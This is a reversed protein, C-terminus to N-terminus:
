KPDPQPDSLSGSKPHHDAAGNDKSARRRYRILCARGARWQRNLAYRTKTRVALSSIEGYNTSFRDSVLFQSLWSHLHPWDQADFWHMDASGSNGCLHCVPLIWFEWRRGPCANKERWAHELECLFYGRNATSLSIVPLIQKIGTLVPLMNIDTWILNLFPGDLRDLFASVAEKDAHYPVLWNEPDGSRQLAWLM